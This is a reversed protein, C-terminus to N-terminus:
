PALILNNFQFTEVELGRVFARRKELAHDWCFRAVVGGLTLLFYLVEALKDLIGGRKAVDKGLNVPAALVSQRMVRPLANRQVEQKIRRKFGRRILFQAAKSDPSLCHIRGKRIHVVEGAKCTKKIRPMLAKISPRRAKVRPPVRAIRPRPEDQLMPPVMGPNMAEPIKDKVPRADPKSPVSADQAAMPQPRTAMAAQQEGGDEEEEIVVVTVKTEKKEAVAVQKKFVVPGKGLMALLFTLAIGAVLAMVAALTFVKLLQGKPAQHEGTFVTSIKKIEGSVEGSAFLEQKKRRVLLSKAIRITAAFAVLMALIIVYSSM